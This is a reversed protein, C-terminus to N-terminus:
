ISSACTKTHTRTALRCFFWSWVEVDAATAKDAHVSGQRKGAAAPLGQVRLLCLTNEKLFECLLPVAAIIGGQDSVYPPKSLWM